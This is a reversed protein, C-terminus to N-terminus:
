HVKLDQLNCPNWKLEDARLPISLCMQWVEFQLIGRHGIVQGGGFESALGPNPRVSTSRLHRSVPTGMKLPRMSLFRKKALMLAVGALLRPADSSFVQASM